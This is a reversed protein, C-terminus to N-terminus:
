FLGKTAVLATIGALEHAKFPYRDAMIIWNDQAKQVSPKDALQILLIDIDMTVQRWGHPPLTMQPQESLSLTVNSEHVKHSERVRHCKHEFLKFIQQLQQLSMVTDLELYVCQNTYDPKPQVITATFDANQIPLSLTIQGLEQLNERVRALYYAAHHNSGLALLVAAVRDAQIDNPACHQLQSMTTPLVM